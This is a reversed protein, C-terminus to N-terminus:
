FHENDINFKQYKRFYVFLAFPEAICYILLCITNAIIVGHWSGLLRVLLISVPIKIIAGLGYCISQTKLKGLGNAISSLLSVFIMETGFVAFIVCTVLDIDITNDGLWLDVIPDAVIILIFEFFSFFAAIYIFKIYTKKIWNINSQAHLTEVSM